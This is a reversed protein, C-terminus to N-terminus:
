IGGGGGQRRIFFERKWLADRPVVSWLNLTSRPTGPFSLRIIQVQKLSLPIIVQLTSIMVNYNYLLHQHM